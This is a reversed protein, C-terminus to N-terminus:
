YGWTMPALRLYPHNPDIIPQNLKAFSRLCQKRFAPTAYRRLSAVLRSHPVQLLSKPAVKIRCM